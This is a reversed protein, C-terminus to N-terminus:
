RNALLLLKRRRCGRAETPQSAPQSAVLRSPHLLPLLVVIAGGFPSSYSSGLLRDLAAREAWQPLECSAMRMISDTHTHRRWKPDRASSSSGSAPRGDSHGCHLATRAQIQRARRVLLMPARASRGTRRWDERPDRADGRRGLRASGLRASSLTTRRQARASLFSGGIKCLVVNCVLLWCLVDDAKAETLRTLTHEREVLCTDSQGIQRDTQKNTQNTHM